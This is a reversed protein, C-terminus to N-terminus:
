RRELEADMVSREKRLEDGAGMTGGTGGIGWCIGVDPWRRAELRSGTL